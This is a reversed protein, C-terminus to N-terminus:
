RFRLYEPAPLLLPHWYDLLENLKKTEEIATKYQTEVDNYEQKINNLENVMDEENNATAATIEKEIMELVFLKRKKHEDIWIEKCHTLEKKLLQKTGQIANILKISPIVVGFALFLKVKFPDTNENFCLEDYMEVDKAFNRLRLYTKKLEVTDNFFGEKYHSEPCNFGVVSSGFFKQEKDEFFSVLTYEDTVSNYYNGNTPITFPKCHVANETIKLNVFILKQELLASLLHRSMESIEELPEM